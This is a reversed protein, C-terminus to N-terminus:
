NILHKKKKLNKNWKYRKTRDQENRMNREHQEKAIMEWHGKKQLLEVTSLVISVLAGFM